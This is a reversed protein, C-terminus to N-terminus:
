NAGPNFNGAASFAVKQGRQKLVTRAIKKSQTYPNATLDSLGNKGQEPSNTIHTPPTSPFPNTRASSLNAFFLSLSKKPHLIRPAKCPLWFKSGDSVCLLDRVRGPGNRNGERRTFFCWLFPDTADFESCEWNGELFTGTSTGSSRGTWPREAKGGSAHFFLRM